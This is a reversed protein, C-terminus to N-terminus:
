PFHVLEAVASTLRMAETLQDPTLGAFGLVLGSPGTATVRFETIGRVGVDLDRARRVLEAEDIGPLEIHIHQGASIGAIRATPLYTGIAAVLADRRERYLLRMARVHRDFAGSTILRAVIYQDLVPSGLDTKARLDAVAAAIRPPALIWGLRLGPALSKSVSGMLVGRDPLLGQLCGIPERDYRFEADYDDEIVLADRAAAWDRLRARRAPSLVVGTPYQHAPTLMVADADTRELAAIDMGEGDVPVPILEAGASRLLPLQFPSTPDEIALKVPGLARTLLTIADAVGGVTVIHEPRALAARTRGLYDALASRFAPVGATDPYGFAENPLDALVQRSASLWERRPFRSLNPTGLRLDYRPAPPPTAAPPTAPESPRAIAAVRTGSGQRSILFGEAILQEYAEVVVGRSVSLDAALERSSPLRTGAALRGSRIAARLQAAIDRALGDAGPTVTLPLETM